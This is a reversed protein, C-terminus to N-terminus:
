PFLGFRIWQQRAAIQASGNMGLCNVTARGISTKGKITSSEADADFHENWRDHRPHFLRVESELEPDRFRVRTGKFLNCSRCALGWNSESDAGGRALPVIHEVEFPFNFVIEPAHCYECRHTARSAVREYRPNM